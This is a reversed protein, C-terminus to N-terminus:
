MLNIVTNSSMAVARVGQHDIDRNSAAISVVVVFQTPELEQQRERGQRM